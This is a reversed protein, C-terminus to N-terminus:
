NTNPRSLGPLENINSLVYRMPQNFVSQILNKAPKEEVVASLTEKRDFTLVAENRGARILISRIENESKELVIWSGFEDWTREFLISKSKVDGNKELLMDHPLWSPQGINVCIWKGCLKHLPPKANGQKKLEVPLKPSELETRMIPAVPPRVDPSQRISSQQNSEKFFDTKKEFWLVVLGALVSV